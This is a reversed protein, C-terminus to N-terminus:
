VNAPGVIMDMLGMAGSAIYESFTIWTIIYLYNGKASIYKGNM